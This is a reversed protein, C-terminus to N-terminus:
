VPIISVLLSTAISEAPWGAPYVIQGQIVGSSSLNYAKAGDNGCTVIIGDDCVTAMDFKSGTATGTSISAGVGSSSWANVAPSRGWFFKTMDKSWCFNPSPLGTYGYVIAAGFGSDSWPWIYAYARSNTGHGVFQGDPSVELQGPTQSATTEYVSPNAYKSGFGSSSWAYASVYPSVTHTTIVANGSSSFFGGYGVGPLATSPNAFKTGFGSSYSWSYAHVGVTNQSGFLIVDQTPHYSASRCTAGPTVSPTSYRTGFGVSDSWQYAAVYPSNNFAVFVVDRQRSMAIGRVSSGPPSSPGNYMSGITGDSMTRCAYIGGNTGIFLVGTQTISTKKSARLFTHRM